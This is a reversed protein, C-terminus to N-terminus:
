DEVEIGCDGLEAVTKGLNAAIVAELRTAIETTTAKYHYSNPHGEFAGRFTVIRNQMEHFRFITFMAFMTPVGMM